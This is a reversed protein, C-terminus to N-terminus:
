KIKRLKGAQAPLNKSRRVSKDHHKDHQIKRIRLMEKMDWHTM